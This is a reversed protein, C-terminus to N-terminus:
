HGCLKTKGISMPSLTNGLRMAHCVFGASPLVEYLFM